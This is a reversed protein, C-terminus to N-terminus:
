LKKLTKIKRLIHFYSKYADKEYNLPTKLPNKKPNGDKLKQKVERYKLKAM